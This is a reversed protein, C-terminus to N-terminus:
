STDFVVRTRCRAFGVVCMAGGRFGSFVERLAAEETPLVSRAIIRGSSQRVTALTTSQHVDLGVYRTSCKM